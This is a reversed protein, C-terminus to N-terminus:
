VLHALVVNLDPLRIEVNVVQIVTGMVALCPVVAMELVMGQCVELALDVDHGKELTKASFVRIAHVIPVPRNRAAM